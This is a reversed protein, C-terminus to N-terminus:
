ENVETLPCTKCKTYEWNRKEKNYIYPVEASTLFCRKLRYCDSIWHNEKCGAKRVLKGTDICFKCKLCKEPIKKLKTRAIIM